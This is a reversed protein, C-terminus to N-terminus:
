RAHCWDQKTGRGWYEVAYGLALLEKSLNRGDAIVYANLRFFKDRHVQELRISKAQALVSSVIAKAAEAKAIEQPCRGHLEPADIGRFRVEIRRFVSPLAPLEVTCTDGDHCAVYRVEALDDYANVQSAALLCLLGILLPRTM